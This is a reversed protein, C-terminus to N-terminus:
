EKGKEKLYRDCFRKRQEETSLEGNNTYPMLKNEAKHKIYLLDQKKVEEILETRIAFDPNFGHKISYDDYDKYNDENCIELKEYVTKYIYSKISKNTTFQDIYKIIPVFEECNNRAFECNAINLITLILCFKDLALEKDKQDPLENFLRKYINTLVVCIKDLNKRDTIFSPFDGYRNLINTGMRNYEYFCSRNLKIRKDLFVKKLVKIDNNEYLLKLFNLNYNKGEDYDYKIEVDGTGYLVFYARKCGIVM